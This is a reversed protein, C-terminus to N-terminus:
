PGSAVQVEVTNSRIGGTTLVLARAGPAIGTPVRVNVQQLGQITTPGSYTVVANIGDIRVTSTANLGIGTCYIELFEGPKVPRQQTTRGTGAVLVAGEGTSSNFFIGPAAGAVILALPSSTGQTSTVVLQVPGPLITAPVVFNIQSDSVYTLPAATNNLTVKVGGLTTAFTSGSASATVGGAMSGGFISAFGGPALFPGLFSAGNVVGGNAIAPVGLATATGASQPAGPVTFTLTNFSGQSPNWTFSAEGLANTVSTTPTVTGGGSATVQIPQNSYPLKNQDVVRAVVPQLPGADVPQKDGSAIMVRLDSLPSVQVRAIAPHFDTSDPVARLEEVGVRSGTVDFDVRKAGAPITVNGPGRVVGQPTEITFRIPALAPAALEISATGTGNLLIGAAPALSLSATRRLTTSISARFDTSKAYFGEFATRYTDVQAIAAAAPTGASIDATEDVVVVFAFRFNRQAVSADPTRRGAAKIVDEVPIDLRTGNFTIGTQPGKSNALGSNLVAFSPPVDQPARFGMLYQDLASYHQVTATTRYRPNASPGLDEIRNGEMVSADSHYPFAWHALGAGLMPPFAAGTPSPVSVLALFLHGTEHALISVPTDGITGRSAVTGFPDTPYQITPGLNLVAQLQKKSGYDYGTETPIDGYGDGRSRTTVEYAVV